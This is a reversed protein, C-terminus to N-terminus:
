EIRVPKASLIIKVAEDVSQGNTVINFQYKADGKVYYYAYNHGGNAECSEGSECKKERFFGKGLDEADSSIKRREDLQFVRILAYDEQRINQGQYETADEERTGGIYIADATSQLVVEASAKAVETEPNSAYARTGAAYMVWESPLDFSLVWREDRAGGFCGAGLLVVAAAIAFFYKKM